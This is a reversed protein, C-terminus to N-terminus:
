DRSSVGGLANKLRQRKRCVDDAVQGLEVCRCIFALNGLASSIGCDTRAFQKVADGFCMDHISGERMRSRMASSEIVRSSSGPICADLKPRRDILHGKVLAAEQFLAPDRFAETKVIRIEQSVERTLEMEEILRLALLAKL